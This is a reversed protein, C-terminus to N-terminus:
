TATPGRTSAGPRTRAPRVYSASLHLIPISATAPDAKIRRCVEFGDIDPLNVDLIVLDPLAAVQRLAEEGCDAEATAFGARKLMRTVAYRNAENDDVNLITIPHAAAEPTPILCRPRGGTGPPGPRPRPPRDPDTAVFTSGVGPESRVDLGGGLLVALKRALPLGLGTGKSKRQLPGDVQGFEEFIRGIDGEAIGIGTDSSRSRSWGAPCRSPRRGPGRGARHVEPRQLRPQPPGPRAEGRRDGAQAPGLPRRLGLHVPSGAPLLPRLMGRLVGFFEALDVEGLHIPERGAEIRALDLLDNVMGSLDRAARLIYSVQRTQEENLDGDTRDLLLRSLSLISTLPTRLEHSVNSLFHTKMESARRLSDAREDIEHYLALVGRNTDELERNLRALEIERARLDDLARIMDRNQRLLEEVPSPPALQALDEAVQAAASATLAPARRPLAKTMAVVTGSGPSSDLRFGDM